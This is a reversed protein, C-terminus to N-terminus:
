PSSQSPTRPLARAVLTLGLGLLMVFTSGGGAMTALGDLILVAAGMSGLAYAFPTLRPPAAYTPPTQGASAHNQTNM